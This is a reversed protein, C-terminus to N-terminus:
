WLVLIVRLMKVLLFHLVFFESFWMICGVGNTLYEEALIKSKAYPTEGELPHEETILEGSECGYVAVTSIFVLAKPPGQCFM